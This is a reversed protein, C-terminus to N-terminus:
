WPSFLPNPISVMEFNPITKLHFILTIPSLIWLIEPTNNILKGDRIQCYSINSILHAIRVLPYEEEKADKIDCPGIHNQAHDKVKKKFLEWAPGSMERGVRIESSFKGNGKKWVEPILWGHKAFQDFIATYKNKKTAEPFSVFCYNKRFWPHVDNKDTLLVYYRFDYNALIEAIKKWSDYIYKEAGNPVNDEIDKVAKEAENKDTSTVATLVFCGFHNPDFGKEGSSDIGVFMKDPM